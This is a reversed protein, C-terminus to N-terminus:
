CFPKFHVISAIIMPESPVTWLFVNFTNNFAPTLLRCAFPRTFHNDVDHM